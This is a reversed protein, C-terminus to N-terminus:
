NASNFKIEEKGEEWTAAFNKINVGSNISPKGKGVLTHCFEERRKRIEEREVRQMMNVMKEEGLLFLEGNSRDKRTKKRTRETQDEEKEDPSTRGRKSSIIFEIKKTM